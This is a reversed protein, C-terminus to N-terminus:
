RMGILGSATTGTSMVQALRIAYLSGGQMNEFTVVDGSVMRAVVTGGTGVYLGRTAYGLDQADNPTIMEGATAPATLNRSFNAYEDQM